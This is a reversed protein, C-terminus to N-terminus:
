KDKNKCKEGHWRSYMASSLMKGCHQCTKMIQSTHTGNEIQKRTADGGLWNHTGAAVRKLNLERTKESGQWPHRNETVQQLAHKRSLESIIEPALDMRQAISRCEIWDGQASHIDYHEQISVAILNTINNNNCNGDIHHIEYSRGSSDKPIPGYHKEYFRRYFTSPTRKSSYITM